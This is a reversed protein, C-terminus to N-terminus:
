WLPEDRLPVVVNQQFFPQRRLESEAKVNLKIESYKNIIDIAWKRVASNAHSPPSSLIQISLSIYRLQIEKDKQIQAFWNGAFAIALPIILASAITSITKAKEWRDVASSKHDSM